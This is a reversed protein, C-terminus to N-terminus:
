RNFPLFDPASFHIGAFKCTAGFLSSRKAVNDKQWERSEPWDGREFM